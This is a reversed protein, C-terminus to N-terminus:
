RPDAPLLRSHSAAGLLSSDPSLRGRWIPAWAKFSGQLPHPHARGWLWCGSGLFPLGGGAMDSPRPLVPTQLGPSVPGGSVRRRPPPPPLAPLSCPPPTCPALVGPWRAHAMGAPGRPCSKSTVRGRPTEPGQGKLFLWKGHSNM